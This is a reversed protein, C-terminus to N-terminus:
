SVRVYSVVRGSTFTVQYWNGDGTIAHGEARWDAFLVYLVAGRYKKGTLSSRFKGGM